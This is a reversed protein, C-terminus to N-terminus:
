CWIGAILVNYISGLVTKGHSTKIMHESVAVGPNEPRDSQMKSFLERQEAVSYEYVPKTGALTGIAQLMAWNHSDLHPMAAEQDVM